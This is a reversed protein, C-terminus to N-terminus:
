LFGCTIPESFCNNTSLFPLLRLIIFAVSKCCFFLYFIVKNECMLIMEGNTCEVHPNGTYGPACSCLAQHALSNCLANVGCADVRCAEM